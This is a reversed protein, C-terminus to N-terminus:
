QAEAVGSVGHRRVWEQACRVVEVDLSRRQEDAGLYTVVRAADDIDEYEWYAGVLHEIDHSDGVYKSDRHGMSEARRFVDMMPGLGERPVVSGNAIAGVCHRLLVWVAEDKSPTTVHEAELIREFLPRAEAMTQERLTALDVVARAALGSDVLRNALASLEWSPIADLVYKAAAIRLEEDDDNRACGFLARITCQMM